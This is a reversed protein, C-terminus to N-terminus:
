REDGGGFLGCCKLVHVWLACDQEFCVVCGEKRYSMLPCIPRAEDDTM